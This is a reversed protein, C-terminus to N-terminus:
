KLTELINHNCIWIAVTEYTAALHFGIWCDPKWQEKIDQIVGSKTIKVNFIVGITRLHNDANWCIRLAM